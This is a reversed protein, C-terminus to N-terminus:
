SLHERGILIRLDHAIDADSDAPSALLRARGHADFVYIASSHNVDYAGDGLDPGREFAVRYRKALAEIESMAGTLGVARPDFAAAYRGVVPPTDRAPDVSVFLIRVDGALPGLRQMVLHLHTMTLPCEDPCHTYGFYLVVVKGLYNRQTVTRGEGDTLHLRLNPLHGDIDTLRWAPPAHQSCAALLALLAPWLRRPM